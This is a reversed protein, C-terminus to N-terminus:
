LEKRDPKSLFGDAVALDLRGDDDYDLFISGFAWQGRNVGLAVGREDFGGDAAVYLTNGRAFKELRRKHAEDVAAEDVVRTGARSYMNGVYLALRGSGDVDGLGVSMGNGPDTLGFEAAGETFGGDATMWWLDHSGFDNAVYIERLGRGTLDGAAAALGWRGRRLPEPIPVERFHFHGDGLFFRPPQGNHAELYDDALAGRPYPLVVLDLRGDGDLDAAIASHWPGGADLCGAPEFRGGVNRLFCTGRSNADGSALLVIDPAGDSDFDGVVPDTYVVGKPAPPGLPERQFHLPRDSRFLFAQEPEVAIVDPRGDGDLDRVALGGRFLDEWDAGEETRAPLVLGAGEAIEVFRRVPRAVRNRTVSELAEWKWHGGARSFRADGEGQEVARQGDRQTAELEWSLHARVQQATAELHLPAISCSSVLALGDSLLEVGPAAVREPLHFVGGKFRACVEDGLFDELADAVAERRGLEKPTSAGTPVGADPAARAGAAILAALAVLATGVRRTV